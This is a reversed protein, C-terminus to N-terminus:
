YSGTITVEVNLYINTQMTLNSQFHDNVKANFGSSSLNTATFDSGQYYLTTNAAPVNVQWPCITTNDDSRECTKYIFVLIHDSEKVDITRNNRKLENQDTFNRTLHFRQHVDSNRIIFLAFRPRVIAGGGGGNNGNPAIEGAARISQLTGNVCVRGFYYLGSMGETENTEEEAKIVRGVLVNGVAIFIHM